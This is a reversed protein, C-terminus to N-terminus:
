DDDRRKLAAELIERWEAFTKVGVVTQQNNVVFTPTGSVRSGFIVDQLILPAVRDQAVCATWAEMPVGAERAYRAMIPGPDAATAWESQSQFIRDHMPWFRDGTGGACLAAEAAVWSNMHSPMPLSVFVWQVRNTRIYASDIQPFVDVAFQRCFPCQFDSIEYVLVPAGEAGKSRDQAARELLRAHPSAPPQSQQQGAVAAPSWALGAIIGTFLFTLAAFRRAHTSGM